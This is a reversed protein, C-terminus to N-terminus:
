AYSRGQPGGSVAPTPCIVRSLTAAFSTRHFPSSNKRNCSAEADHEQKTHGFGLLTLLACRRSSFQDVYWRIGHSRFQIVLVSKPCIVQSLKNRLWPRTRYRVPM